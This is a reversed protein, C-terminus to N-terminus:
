RAEAPPPTPAPPFTQRTAVDAATFASLLVIFFVAAAVVLANTSRQEVLHMFFLLVLVSKAAAIALAVVVDAAGLHMSSLGFSLLTLALLALWVRLYHATSARAREAM